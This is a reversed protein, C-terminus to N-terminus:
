ARAGQAAHLDPRDGYKVGNANDVVVRYHYTTEDDPRLAAASVDTTTSFDPRRTPALLAATTGYGTTTGYEFKCETVDGGGNPDVTANLTGSTPTPSAVPKYTVKPCRRRRRSSTSPRQQIPM